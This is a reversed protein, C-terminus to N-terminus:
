EPDSKFARQCPQYGIGFGALVHGDYQDRIRREPSRIWAQRAAEAEAVREPTNHERILAAVM